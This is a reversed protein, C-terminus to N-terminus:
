KDDSIRLLKERLSKQVFESISSYEGKNVLKEISLLDYVEFTVTKSVMM